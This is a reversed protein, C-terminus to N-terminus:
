SQGHKRRQAAVQDADATAKKRANAIQQGQYLNAKFEQASVKRKGFRKM